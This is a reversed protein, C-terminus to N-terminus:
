INKTEKKAIQWWEELVDESLVALEKSQQSALMEIYRFRSEFKSNARRLATESDVKLHRSLSIVTFLLDGLEEEVADESSEAQNQVYNDDAPTYVHKNSGQFAVGAERLEAIEEQVKDYVDQINSWDFNVSAARKQLKIARVTGPLALPIDDMLSNHGKSQREEAKTKEWVKKINPQVGNQPKDDSSRFASNLDIRSDLTGDPFVHPHRRLLKETLSSVVDHFDFKEEEKGLHSYFIIQFLLDGLEEKLQKPDDQEIADVVEYAEELTSSTITKYSQALDWPCGYDPERLRAMLTLLDELSYISKSV